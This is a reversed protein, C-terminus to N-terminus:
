GRRTSRLAHAPRSRRRRREEQPSCAVGPHASAIRRGRCRFCSPQLHLGILSEDVVKDRSYITSRNNTMTHPNFTFLKFSTTASKCVQQYHLSTNSIHHLSITCDRLRCTRELWSGNIIVHHLPTPHLRSGALLQFDMTAHRRLRTCGVQLM